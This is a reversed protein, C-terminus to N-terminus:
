GPAILDPSLMEEGEPRLGGAANILQVTTWVGTRGYFFRIGQQKLCREVDAQRRYATLTQLDAYEVLSENMTM